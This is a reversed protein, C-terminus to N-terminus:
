TGNKESGVHSTGNAVLDDIRFVVLILRLDEHKTTEASEHDSHDPQQNRRGILKWYRGGVINNSGVNSERDSGMAKWRDIPFDTAGDENGPKCCGDESAQQSSEEEFQEEFKNKLLFVTDEFASQIHVGNNDKNGDRDVKEEDQELRVIVNLHVLPVPAM